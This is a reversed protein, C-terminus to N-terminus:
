IELAEGLCWIAGNPLHPFYKEGYSLATKLVRMAPWPGFDAGMARLLCLATPTVTEGQGGFGQIAVGELMRLVAPAPAPITGHACHILGDALPLPSAVFRKPALDCFIRCSLCIDLISDLAGVEHFCVKEPAIGHVAGEARALLTFAEQAMAKAPDPMKSASIIRTIDALSRHAHECPLRIGLGVGAIQSVQRDELSIAGELASLGLERVLCGLSSTDLGALDCLGALIMDGSLGSNARVTLIPKNIRPRATAKHPGVLRIKEQAAEPGFDLCGQAASHDHGHSHADAGHKHCHGPVIGAGKDAEGLHRHPHAADPMCHGQDEPRAQDAKHETM